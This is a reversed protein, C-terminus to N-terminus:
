ATSKIRELGSIRANKRIRANIEEIAETVKLRTVMSSVDTGYLDTEASQLLELLEQDTM